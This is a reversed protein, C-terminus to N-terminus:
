ENEEGRHAGPWPGPAEEPLEVQSVEEKFLAFGRARYNALAAPGDLTCTHLWVRAAKMQWACEVARTLLEGGVGRGIFQPLLGFYAIEVAGGAQRELEYYGAPTGAIYGVWTELEPRNLYALWMGYNWGLRDIWYWNGGVSTYLFRNLEPCIIEARQVILDLDSRRAPRLQSPEAMELYYTTVAVKM